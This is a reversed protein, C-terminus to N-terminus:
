MPNELYNLNLINFIAGKIKYFFNLMLKSNQNSIMFTNNM